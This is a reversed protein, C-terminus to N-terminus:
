PKVILLRPYGAEIMEQASKAGLAIGHVLIRLDLWYSTRHIAAQKRLCGSNVSSTYCKGAHFTRGAISQPLARVALKHQGHHGHNENGPEIGRNRIGALEQVERQIAPM